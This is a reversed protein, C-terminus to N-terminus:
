SRAKEREGYVAAAGLLVGIILGLLFVAALVDLTSGSLLLAAIACLLFVIVARERSM